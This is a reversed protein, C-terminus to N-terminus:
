PSFFGNGLVGLLFPGGSSLLLSLSAGKPAFASLSLPDPDGLYGNKSSFAFLLPGIQSLFDILVMGKSSVTLFGPPPLSLGWLRYL